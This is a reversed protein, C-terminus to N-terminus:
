DGKEKGIDIDSSLLVITVTQIDFYTFAHKRIDTRLNILFLGHSKTQNIKCVIKRVVVRYCCLLIIPVLAFM